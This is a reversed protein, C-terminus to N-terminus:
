SLKEYAFVINMEFNTKGEGFIHFFLFFPATAIALNASCRDGSRSSSLESGWCDCFCLQSHGHAEGPGPSLCLSPPNRSDSAPRGTLGLNLLLGQRWLHLPSHSFTGGVNAEVDHVCMHVCVHEISSHPVCCFVDM